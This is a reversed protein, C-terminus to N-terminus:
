KHTNVLVYKKGLGQILVIDQCLETPHEKLWKYDVLIDSYHGYLSQIMIKRQTKQMMDLADQLYDSM